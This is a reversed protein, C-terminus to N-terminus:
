SHAGNYHQTDRYGNYFGIFGSEFSYTLLFLSDLVCELRRKEM